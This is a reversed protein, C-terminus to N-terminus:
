KNKLRWIIDIAYFFLILGIWSVVGFCVLIIGMSYNHKVYTFFFGSTGFMFIFLMLFFLLVRDWGQIDRIKIMM